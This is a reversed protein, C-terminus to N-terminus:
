IWPRLCLSYMIYSCTEWYWNRYRTLRVCYDPGPPTPDGLKSFDWETGDLWTPSRGNAFGGPYYSM